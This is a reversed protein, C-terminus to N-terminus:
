KGKYCKIIRIHFPLFYSYVVFFIPISFIHNWEKLKMYGVSVVAWEILVSIVIFIIVLRWKNSSNLYNLYIVALSSPIFSYTILEGIGSIKPHGFDVLDFIGAFINDSIWTLLGIVGITIYLERWNIEKKPMLLAYLLLILGLSIPLWLGKASLDLNKFISDM